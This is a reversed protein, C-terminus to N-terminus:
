DHTARELYIMISEYSARRAADRQEGLYHETWGRPTGNWATDRANLSAGGEVLVRVADLSGSSVAHHLPTAHSYLDASPANPDAAGIEIMHRLAGANGNIAALVFAMQREAPSAPPLFRSVDDWRDLCLASALTVRAGRAILHAAADRNRNVLANEPNGDVAAGAEALVDILALQVGCDRAIWSWSVLRLAHDLQEQLGDVELRRAARIIASAMEAINPPLTGARVPDEAVFWLLYPRAFFDDLAAGVQARLWPAPSELRARALTPHEDLLRTLADLDGTDIANIGERFLTDLSAVDRTM